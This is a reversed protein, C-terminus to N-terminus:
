ISQIMSKIQTSVDKVSLTSKCYQCQIISSTPMPLAAGCQPCKLQVVDLGGKYEPPPVGTRRADAESLIQKSLDTVKSDIETQLTGIEVLLQAKEGKESDRGLKSAITLITSREVRSKEGRLLETIIFLHRQVTALNTIAQRTAQTLDQEWIPFGVKVELRRVIERRATKSLM